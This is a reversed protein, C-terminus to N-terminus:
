FYEYDGADSWAEEQRKTNRVPVARVTIPGPRNPTKPATPLGDSMTNCSFCAACGQKVHIM